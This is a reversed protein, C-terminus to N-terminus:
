AGYKALRGANALLLPMLHTSPRLGLGGAACWREGFRNVGDRGCRPGQLLVPVPHWSHAAMQSPTAHDGTVAVVDPGEALLDPIALDLSEIAAIKGARDGDEGAGDADKHHVFFFEAANWHDRLLGVQGELDSPPGLVEFGLLSAIGRYMPYVAVAAAARLGYREPFSPLERQSDFGRLLVGNAV